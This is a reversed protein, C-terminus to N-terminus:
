QIPDRSLVIKSGILILGPAWVTFVTCVFAGIELTKWTSGVTYEGM